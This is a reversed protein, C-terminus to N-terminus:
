HFLQLFRPRYPQHDGGCHYILGNSIKQRVKFRSVDKNVTAIRVVNVVDTTRPFERCLLDVVHVHTGAATDPSQIAAVAHHNASFCIDDLMEVRNERGQRGSHTVYCACWSTLLNAAGSLLAIQVTSRITSAVKYLHHM